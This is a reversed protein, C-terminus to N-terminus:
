KLFGLGAFSLQENQQIKTSISNDNLYVIVKDKASTKSNNFPYGVINQTTFKKSPNSEKKLSVNEM